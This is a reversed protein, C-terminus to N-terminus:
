LNCYEKPSINTYKKFSKSFYNQDVYGVEFAIQKVYKNGEILMSKAKEMRIKIIYEKINTGYVKSFIRSLYFSSMSVYLALNDLSIDNMYNNEIYNKVKEVVDINKSRKYNSIYTILKKLILNVCNKLDSIERLDVLEKLIKDKSFSKFDKSTFKNIDEIVSNFMVLLIKKVILLDPSGDRSLLNSLITDLEIIAGNLDEKILKGSLIHNVEDINNNTNINRNTESNNNTDINNNTEINKNTENKEITKDEWGYNKNETNESCRKADKYSLYLQNLGENIASVGISLTVDYQLKFDSRLENILNEFWRSLIKSGVSEDFVFLIIDNLCLGGIIKPFLVNLKNKILVISNRSFIKKENLNFIICCFKVSDIGFINRYENFQNDTLTVGYAINEIMQKELYPSIKKYSEKLENSKNAMLNKSNIKNIVKNLSNVFEDNSFPKLLYDSVGIHIAQKAYDFYNFATLIIFETEECKKKIITCAELGEMIPMHIDMLIIHPKLLLAKDVADRGNSVEDVVEISKSFHKSLLFGLGTSKSKVESLLVNIKEDDMGVGNDKVSISIFCNQEKITINIIGGKAKERLGHIIANEVIPQILM